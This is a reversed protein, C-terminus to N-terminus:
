SSGQRTTLESQHVYWAGSFRGGRYYRSRIRGLVRDEDLNERAAFESIPLYDRLDEQTIDDGIRRQHLLLFLGSGAVAGTIMVGYIILWLVILQTYLFILWGGSLIFGPISLFIFLVSLIGLVIKLIRATGTFVTMLVGALFALFFVVLAIDKVLEM